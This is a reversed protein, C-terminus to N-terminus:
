DKMKVRSSYTHLEKYKGYLDSYQLNWSCVTKHNTKLQIDYIPANLELNIVATIELTQNIKVSIPELLVLGINAWNSSHGPWSKNSSTCLESDVCGIKIFIGCVSLKGNRKMKCRTVHTQKLELEQSFDLRELLAHENCLQFKDFDIACRFLNPHVNLLPDSIVDSCSMELPVIWSEAFSPVFKANPYIGKLLKLTKAVGESSAIVGFIEHLICDVDKPLLQQQVKFKEDLFGQQMTANPFPSLIRKAHKLAEKNVEIGHYVANPNNKLVMLSLCAESGPGIELWKTTSTHNMDIWKQYCKNREVDQSMLQYCSNSFSQAVSKANIQEKEEPQKLCLPLHSPRNLILEKIFSSLKYLSEYQLIAMRQSKRYRSM